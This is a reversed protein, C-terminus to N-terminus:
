SSLPATTGRVILETELVVEDPELSPELMQELLLQGGIVGSEYLSQRITTLHLLKAAEIDDYGIVSFDEPVNLGLDRAAELVGIAQTDSYVFLATPPDPLQLLERTLHRASERDLTGQRYYGARVPIGAGELAQLYGQYRDHTPANNFPNTPDDNLYAIQHHGLQILHETAQRAGAVNDVIVRSFGPHEADVIVTPVNAEVIETVDNESPKLSIILLGDVIERQIINKLLGDRDEANEVDFLVLDYQSTAIVSIVGQLRKVVSPNTFFPVVVGVAMTKGRSLRRAAQSPSFNLSDIVSLVKQRTLDSVSPNNNLVRSVTGVGVGAHKAVDRITVSNKM